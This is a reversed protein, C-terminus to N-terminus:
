DQICWVHLFTDCTSRGTTWGPISCPGPGYPCIELRFAFGTDGAQFSTWANCNFQGPNGAGDLGSRAWGVAGASRPAGGGSDALVLGRTTDYELGALDQIESIAAFHFGTGCAATPTSGSHVTTTLYFRRGRGDRCRADDCVNGGTATGGQVSSGANLLFQNQAYGARANLVAGGGQNSLIANGVLAGSSVIGAGANGSVENHSIVGGSEIGVGGNRSVVNQSIVGRSAYIGGAGNRSVTTREVRAEAGLELGYGGMGQISGGAVHVDDVFASVGAGSGLPACQTTAGTQPSVACVTPGTIAFGGLDISVHPATVVIASTGPAPVVLPGTLRYSGGQSLTVPLGPADGPTVGGAAARASNIEVVGDAGEASGALLLALAIAAFRPRAM